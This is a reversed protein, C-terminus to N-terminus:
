YRGSPVAFTDKMPANKDSNIYASNGGSALQAATGVDVVQCPGGHIHFPHDFSVIDKSNLLFSFILCCHIWDLSDKEVFSFRVFIREGGVDHFILEHCIGMELDIIHTCTCIGCEDCYTLYNDSDCVNEISPDLNHTLIPCTTPSNTIGNIRSLQQNTAQASFWM